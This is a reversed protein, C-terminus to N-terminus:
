KEVVEGYVREVDIPELPECPDSWARIKNDDTYIIWVAFGLAALLAFDLVLLIVIV